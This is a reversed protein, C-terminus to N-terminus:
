DGQLIVEIDNADFTGIQYWSISIDEDSFTDSDAKKIQLSNIKCGRVANVPTYLRSVVIDESPPFGYSDFKNTSEVEIGLGSVGEKSFLIINEKIQDAYDDPLVSGELESIVVKVAIPVEQAYIFRVQTIQGFIDTYDVEQQVYSPLDQEDSHGQLNYFDEGMGCRLMITNAILRKLDEDTNDEVQLVIAVNKAPIGRSDTELTRNTFVKCYTVGQLAALSGYLSEALGQSPTETSKERRRRLAIDNENPEGAVSSLPNIVSTVGTITEVITNITGPDVIFVGNEESECLVNAEGDNTIVADAATKWIISNNDDTISTGKPILVGPQGFFKAMLTSPKGAKRQIGNLQVLSSLMPGTAKMPDFQNYAANLLEWIASLQDCVINIFQIFPDDENFDVQLTEGTDPDTVTSMKQQFENLITHLRKLKFGAATLGYQEDAM